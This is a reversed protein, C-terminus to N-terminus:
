EVEIEECLYRVICDDYDANIPKYKCTDCEGCCIAEWFHRVCEAMEESTKITTFRPKLTIEENLWEKIITNCDMDAYYESGCRNKVPCNNCGSDFVLNVIDEKSMRECRKM